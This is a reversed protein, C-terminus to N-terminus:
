TTTFIYGHQRCFAIYDTLIEATIACRDHLLVISGPKTQDKLRDLLKEQSVAVTDMSRLSWGISQMGLASVAAALNPNSVGYPPRFIGPSRNEGLVARIRENARQLENIISKRSQLDFWFSHSDSHNGIVHGEDAMRRLLDENGPIHKGILFFMARINEKTLIDLIRATYVPHIGDDFTLCITPKGNMTNASLVNISPIFFNAQIRIAGYVLMSLFAILPILLLYFSANLFYILAVMLLMLIVFWKRSTKFTMM